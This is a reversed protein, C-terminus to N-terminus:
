DEANGDEAAGSFTIGTDNLPSTQAFGAHPLLLFAAVIIHGFKFCRM